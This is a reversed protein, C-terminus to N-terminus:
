PSIAPRNCLRSSPQSIPPRESRGKQAWGILAVWVLGEIQGIVHPVSFRARATAHLAAGLRQRLPLDALLALMRHAFLAPTAALVGNM